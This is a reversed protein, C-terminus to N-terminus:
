DLEDDENDITYFLFTCYIWNHICLVFLLNEDDRENYSLPISETEHKILERKEM